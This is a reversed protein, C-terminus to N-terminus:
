KTATAVKTRHNLTYRGDKLRTFDKGNNLNLLITNKQVFREQLVRKIVDDKSMPQRSEAFISQLVDKVTGEKFGWERLAYLGRGVLVFRKDKILENHVTQKLATHKGLGLENIRKTIETFHLPKGSKKLVIYAKDKVGKPVVESWETFGYLGLPSLGILKSINLFNPHSLHRAIEEKNVLANKEKLHNILLALEELARVRVADDLYWHHHLEDNGAGRLFEKGLYLVLLLAGKKDKGYYDLFHPEAVIGGEKNILAATWEISPTLAEKQEKRLDSLAKVEIQRIRERTVGFQDGIEELTKPKSDIGYRLFLVKQYREPLSKVTEKVKSHFPFNLNSSELGRSYSKNVKSKSLSVKDIKKHVVKHNM